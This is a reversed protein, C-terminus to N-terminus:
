REEKLDMIMHTGEAMLVSTDQWAKGASISVVGQSGLAGTVAVGLM